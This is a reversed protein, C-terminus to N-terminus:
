VSRQLVSPGLSFADFPAFLYCLLATSLPFVSFHAGSHFSHFSAVWMLAREKENEESMIKGLMLVEEIALMVFSLDVLRKGCRAPGAGILFQTRMQYCRARSAKHCM